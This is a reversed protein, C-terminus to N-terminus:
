RDFQDSFFENPEIYLKYNLYDFTIDFKRFLPLGIVGLSESHIRSTRHDGFVTIPKKFTYKGFTMSKIRAKYESSKGQAGYSFTESANAPVQINHKNNLALKLPYIGGFDIDVRDNYNKGDPMELSFPVSYGGQPNAQMALISGASNKQFQEPKYLLVENDVFDFKVMFHKFFTNCLQGDLGPFMDAFGAARPSVIVPQDFFIINEFELILDTSTYSATPDGEGAGGIEGHDVPQLALSEVLPSGFLWVEDWLVGNDIMLTAKEGNIKLELLPKGHHMKFPIRVPQKDNILIKYSGPGKDKQPNQAGSKQSFLVLVLIIIM